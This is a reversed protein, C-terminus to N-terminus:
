SDKPRTASPLAEGRLATAPCASLRPHLASLITERLTPM